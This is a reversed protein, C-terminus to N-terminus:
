SAGQEPRATRLSRVDLLALRIIREPVYQSLPPQLIITRMVAIYTTMVVFGILAVGLLSQPELWTQIISCLVALPVLRFIWRSLPRLFDRSSSGTISLLASYNAPLSVLIVGVILGLTAGIIGVVPILLYAVTMSVLGDVLNVIAIRRERGFAFITYIAGTNLHRLLLAVLMLLTLGFGGFHEKGVWTWIFAHNIALVVCFVLGTVLLMGQLLATSVRIIAAPSSSARMEALGPVAVQMLMQPQNALVSILKGTIAYTVVAEPGLLKGILVVDTGVLLMQSVQAVSVWGGQALLKKEASVDFVRLRRPIAWPFRFKLRLMSCVSMCSQTAIWGAALSAIGHGRLVLLVTVFTGVGFGALQVTGVFRADQLGALVAQPIRLPFLLVYFVLLTTLAARTPEWETPLLRLLIAAILAAVLTQAAVIRLTTALFDAIAAERIEPEANGGASAVSRPIIAVIGLDLLGLYLLLQAAIVWLGYQGTGLSKLFFPTLWLGSVM